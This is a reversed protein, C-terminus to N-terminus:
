ECIAAGFLDGAENAGLKLQTVLQQPLLGAAAGRFLFAAGSSPESWPAKGPAGVVLDDRSNGVYNGSALAAGFRDGSENSGLGAQTIFQQPRLNAGSGRFVYVAGARPDAGPAEGPAGVALDDRGDGDYDGSSLAHGFDDDTENVGLGDQAVFNRPVLGEGTGHFVFVGGSKPDPGPAEGPAGVALDDRGDGNFDGSALASGFRDDDENAGLGDQDLTRDPALGLATGRFVFVAGSVPDSGPAEGPAGVALDDRGDGDFDGVCLSAGFGDGLENVGLAAQDLFRHPELGSASGLFVFVGGSTPSSGPAEDPAGVALDDFGDGNFDGAALTAGFRDGAEDAGIGRQDLVADPTLGAGTGLQVFVAGSRPGDDLSEGPAGIALDFNGDGNFDGAALAAGFEDGAENAGLGTQDIVALGVTGAAGGRLLFVLGSRPSWGPAEGPAGIALEDRADGAYDAALGSATHAFLGGLAAVAGVTTSSFVRNMRNDGAFQANVRCDLSEFQRTSGRFDM